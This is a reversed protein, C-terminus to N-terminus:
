DFRPFISGQGYECNIIVALNGVPESGVATFRCNRVSHYGIRLSSRRRDKRIDTLLVQTKHLRSRLERVKSSRTRHCFTKLRTIGSCDMFRITATRMKTDAANERATPCRTGSTAM